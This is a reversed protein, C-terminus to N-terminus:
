HRASRHRPPPNGYTFAASKTVTSSGVTVVVDVTGAAHAPATVHMSVPSDITVDTAAVGGFTVSSNVATTFGQGTITVVTGGGTLGSQPDVASVQLPPVTYNFGPHLTASQGDPNTVVVDVVGEETAPGLPTVATISTSSVTTVTAAVGGFTVTAGSQFGSGSIVVSTGGTTPGSNPSISTITPGAPAANVILQGIMSTHGVGCSPQTCVFPFTGATTATFTISATKGRGCNIGNEVYTDMLIGHGISSADNSPVTCT